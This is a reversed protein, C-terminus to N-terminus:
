EAEVVAKMAIATEIAHELAAHISSLMRSL